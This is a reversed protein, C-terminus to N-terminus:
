FSNTKIHKNQVPGSSLVKKNAKIAEWSIIKDKRPLKASFLLIVSYDRGGNNVCRKLKKKNYLM